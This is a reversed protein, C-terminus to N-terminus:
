GVEQVYEVFLKLPRNLGTVLSKKVVSLLIRLTIHNLLDMDRLLEVLRQYSVEELTHKAVCKLTM